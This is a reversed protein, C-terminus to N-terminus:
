AAAAVERSVRSIRAMFLSAEPADLCKEIRRATEPKCSNRHGSRLHGILARSCGVKAALTRVTFGRHEMYHALAQASILRVEFRVETVIM